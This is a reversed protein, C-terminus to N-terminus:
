ASGGNVALLRRRLRTGLGGLDRQGDAESPSIAPLHVFLILKRGTRDLFLGHESPAATTTRMRVEGVKKRQNGTVLEIGGGEVIGDPFALDSEEAQRDLFARAKASLILPLAAAFRQGGGKSRRAETPAHRAKRRRQVAARYARLPGELNSQAGQARLFAVTQVQNETLGERDDPRSM